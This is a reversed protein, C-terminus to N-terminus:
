ATPSGSVPIEAKLTASYTCPWRPGQFRILPFRLFPFGEETEAGDGPLFDLRFYPSNERENKYEGVFIM